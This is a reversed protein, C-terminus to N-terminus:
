KGQNGETSDHPEYYSAEIFRNARELLEPSTDADTKLEPERVTLFANIEAETITNGNQKAREKAATLEAKLDRRHQVVAGTSKDLTEAIEEFSGHEAMFNTVMGPLDDNEFKEPHNLVDIAQQAFMAFQEVDTRLSDDRFPDLITRQEKGEDAWKLLTRLAQSNSSLKEAVVQLERDSYNDIGRLQIVQLQRLQEDTPVRSLTEDIAALKQEKIEKLKETLFEANLKCHEVFPTRLQINKEAAVKSIYLSNNKECQEKIEKAKNSAAWLLSNAFQRFVSYSTGWKPPVVNRNFADKLAQSAGAIYTYGHSDSAM